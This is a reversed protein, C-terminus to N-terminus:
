NSKLSPIISRLKKPLAPNISVTIVGESKKLEKLIKGDPSVVMSHGFTKRGNYHTGGQAPAFIYCFNEIARAKLLSHWHRKGTTETFASPISIFDCGAKSLKRYMNPFRLDYCISLGLKGWPLNFSKIQKGASFTKSESYKEKKSLVVDYMHIKDYFTRIKGTKDVLVSRNVLKNKTVKIILSGILIWKKYKKALRKIGNLYIDKEMSNCIKLLKKKELSFLSSIEPTLIFDSKQKVAKSILQETKKLNHLINNNSKLQICSVRFM